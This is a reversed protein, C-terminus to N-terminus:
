QAIAGYGERNMRQVYEDMSELMIDSMQKPDMGSPFNNTIQANLTPGSAPAQPGTFAASQQYAPVGLLTQALGQPALPMKSITSPAGGTVLAEAERIKELGGAIAIGINGGRLFNWWERVEQMFKRASEIQDLPFIRGILSDRGEIAGFFDEIALLAVVLGLLPLNVALLALALLGLSIAWAGTKIFVEDIIKAVPTLVQVLGDIFAMVRGAILERNAAIWNAIKDTVDTIRKIFAAGLANKLGLVAAKLHKQQEEWRLSAEITEQDLVVGYKHAEQRLEDIGDRGKNLLPILAKGGRGFLQQALATKRIGDPMTAFRSAVDELLEDSTKLGGEAKYVGVGLQRYAFAAQGGGHAAEFASRALRGLSTTIEESSVGVLDGAYKLEQYAEATTGIKQSTRFAEVATRATTEVVAALATGVAAGIAAIAGLGIRLGNIHKEAREFAGFDADIGLKVALEEIVNAM